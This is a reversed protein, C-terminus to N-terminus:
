KKSELMAIYEQNLRMIEVIFDIDMERYFMNEGIEGLMFHHEACLPITAYDTSKHGVGRGFWPHNVHHAQAKRGCLHVTCRKGRIFDLYKKSRYTVPKPVRM